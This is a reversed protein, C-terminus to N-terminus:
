AAERCPLEAIRFHDSERNPTYTTVWTYAGSDKERGIVAVMEQGFLYFRFYWSHVGREMRSRYGPRYGLLPMDNAKVQRSRAFLAQALAETLSVGCCQEVRDMAHRSITFTEAKTLKLFKGGTTAM